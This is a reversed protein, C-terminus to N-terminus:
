SASPQQEQQQSKLKSYRMLLLCKTTTRTTTIKIKFIANITLVYKTTTTRRAIKIAALCPWMHCPMAMALYIDDYIYICNTKFITPNKFKHVLFGIWM